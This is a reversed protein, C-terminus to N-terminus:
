RKRDDYERAKNRADIELIDNNKEDVNDMHCLEFSQWYASDLISDSGCQKFGLKHMRAFDSCDVTGSGDCDRGYRRMYGRVTKEACEKDVLCTEFDDPKGTFGHKGGDYWYAWSIVYPGCFYDHTGEYNCKATLDCSSSAQCICEMCSQDVDPVYPRQEQQPEQPEQQQPEQPE